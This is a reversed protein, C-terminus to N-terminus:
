FFRGTLRFSLVPYIKWQELTHSFDVNGKQLSNLTKGGKDYIQPTGHAMAGLEARFGLSGVPIARGFGVGIYPKFANTRVDAEVRGSESPFVYGDWTLDHDSHAKFTAIVENGLYFGGSLFFPLRLPYFDLLLKGNIIRLEGDVDMEKSINKGGYSSSTEMQRAFDLSLASIGGRLMLTRHVPTVLELDIGTSGISLGAGLTSFADDDQASVSLSIMCVFALLLRTVKKM